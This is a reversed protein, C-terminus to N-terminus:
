SLRMLHQSDDRQISNRMVLSEFFRMEHVIWFFRLVHLLYFCHALTDRSVSSDLSDPSNKSDNPKFTERLNSSIDSKVIVAIAIPKPRSIKWAIRHIM